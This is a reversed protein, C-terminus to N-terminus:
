PVLIVRGQEGDPCIVLDSNCANPDSKVMASADGAVGAAGFVSLLALVISRIIFTRM